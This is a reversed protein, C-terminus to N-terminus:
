DGILRHPYKLDAILVLISFLLTYHASYKNFGKIYFSVYIKKVILKESLKGLYLLPKRLVICVETIHTFM